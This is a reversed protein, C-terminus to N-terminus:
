NNELLRKLRTVQTGNVYETWKDVLRKFVEYDNIVQVTIDVDQLRQHDVKQLPSLKAGPRNAKFEVLMLRGSYIFICDPFGRYAPTEVKRAFVGKSRAYILCKKQLAREDM